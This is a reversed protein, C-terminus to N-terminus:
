EKAEEFPNGIVDASTHTGIATSATSSAICVMGDIGKADTMGGLKFDHWKAIDRKGTNAGLSSYLSLWGDSDTGYSGFIAPLKALEFYGVAAEETAQGGEPMDSQVVPNAEIITQCAKLTQTFAYQYDAAHEMEGAKAAAAVDGTILVRTSGFNYVGAKLYHANITGENASSTLDMKLGWHHWPAESEPPILETSYTPAAPNDPPFTVGLVIDPRDPDMKTLGVLTDFDTENTVVTYHAKAKDLSMDSLHEMGSKLSDLSSTAVPQNQLTNVRRSQAQMVPSLNIRAQLAAMQRTAAAGQLASKLQLQKEASPRHDDISLLPQSQKQTIQRSAPTQSQNAHKQSAQQKTV